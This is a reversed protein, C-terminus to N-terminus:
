SSLVVSNLSKAVVALAVTTVVLMKIHILVKCRAGGVMLEDAALAVEMIM